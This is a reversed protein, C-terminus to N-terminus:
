GGVPLGGVMPTSLLPTTGVGHADAQQAEGTTNKAKNVGQTAAEVLAGLGSDKFPDVAVNRSVTASGLLKEPFAASSDTPANGIGEAFAPSAFGLALASGAVVVATKSYRM